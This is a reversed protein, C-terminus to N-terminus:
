LDRAPSPNKRWAVQGGFYNGVGLVLLLFIEAALFGPEHAIVPYRAQEVALIGTYALLVTGNFVAHTLADGLRADGARSLVLLDLLGCGAALWGLATGAALCWFGAVAATGALLQASFCHLAAHAPWLAVPFHILMVHLPHGRFRV